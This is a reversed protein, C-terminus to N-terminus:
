STQVHWPMRTVAARHGWNRGTSIWIRIKQAVPPNWLDSGLRTIQWIGYCRRSVVQVPGPQLETTIVVCVSNLLAQHDSRAASFARSGFGGGQPGPYIYNIVPYKKAPDLNTPAFVLGYLDWKGDGSKVTVRTPAKWGATKLRSIDSRELNTVLRGSLDRLVAVPPADPSSYNDVFYRGDPSLSVQHHGDEPTLLSLNSGDLDVRYFHTFYPDRSKERGNAEFYLVKAAEDFKIVRTM